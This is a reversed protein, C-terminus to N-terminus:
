RHRQPTDNASLGLRLIRQLLTNYDVGVSEASEAFDEGYQLQPNTNSELVYLVGETSLRFDMRAYGTQGLARYARKAIKSMEAEVGTPLNRARQTKVGTKKQYAYDWKLRETAILPGKGRRKTVLLEWPPFTEVRGNGIVGVYFERGDIYQEAIADTELEEFICEVRDRLQDENRVISKRSIGVSGHDTASKVFLPFRLHAPLRVKKGLPFVHFDPVLVGHHRLITKSLSKGHALLIATPNCGTYPQRILELYGLLYAAYTSEGRFEELVNFVIDPTHEAIAEELAGLEGALGLVSVEHELEELTVMIDYETKWPAMEKDTFGAMSPPPVFEEDVIMLIRLKRM